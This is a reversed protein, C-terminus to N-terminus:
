VNSLMSKWTSAIALSRMAVRGRHNWDVVLKGARLNAVRYKRGAVREDLWAKAKHLRDPNFGAEDPPVMESNDKPLTMSTM